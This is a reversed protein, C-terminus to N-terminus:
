KTDDLKRRVVFSGETIELRNICVPIGQFLALTVRREM